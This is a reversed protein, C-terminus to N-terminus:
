RLLDEWGDGSLDRYEFEGILDPNIYYKSKGASMLIGGSSLENYAKTMQSFVDEDVMSPLTNNESCYDEESGDHKMFMCLEISWTKIRGSSIYGDMLSRSIFHQRVSSDIRDWARVFSDSFLRTKHAESSVKWIGNGAPSLLRARRLSSVVRIAEPPKVGLNSCVGSLSIKNDCADLYDLFTPYTKAIDSMPDKEDFSETTTKWKKRAADIVFNNVPVGEIDAADQIKKWVSGNASIDVKYRVDDKMDKVNM